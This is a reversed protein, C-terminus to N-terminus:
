DVIRVDNYLLGGLIYMQLGEVETRYASMIWDTYLPIVAADKLLAIQAEEVIEMREEHEVTTDARQLIEDIEPNSYMETWGPTEFLMSLIVPDSWTWRMYNLHHQGESLGSIMIGTEYVQMNVRLGISRLQEAIIQAADIATDVDYTWMILELPEGDKDIFGDGTTDSYGAEALLEIAREPDHGYGYEEGIQPNHGPVGVPMPNWNPTAYGAIAGMVVEENFTAYGIAQRARVDDFPPIDRNFEIFSFNTAEQWIIADIYDVMEIHPMEERPAGGVHLEGAELAAMRTGAEPIIEVRMREFHFPGQNEVDERYTRYNDNRVLEVHSGSVWNEFMLPGSGVPSRGFGDGKEEVVHAPLIGMYATSLQTFLPAYPENYYFVAEYDSIAEVRDLPGIWGAAPAAMEPDILRNFTFEVDEATIPSGDHFEFGERLTFTIETGDDNIEWSEALWGQPNGEPDIYVLRDFMLTMIDSASAMSTEHPDLSNPDEAVSIILTQGSVGVSFFFILVFAFVMGVRLNKM